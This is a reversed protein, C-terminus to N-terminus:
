LIVDCYNVSFMFVFYTKTCLKPDNVTEPCRTASGLEPTHWNQFFRFCHGVDGVMVHDGHRHDNEFITM